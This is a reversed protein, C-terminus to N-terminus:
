AAAADGDSGKPYVMLPSLATKSGSVSRGYSAQPPRNGRM